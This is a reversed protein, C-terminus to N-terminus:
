RNRFARYARLSADFGAVDEDKWKSKKRVREMLLPKWPPTPNPWRGLETMEDVEDRMVLPDVQRDAYTLLLEFEETSVGLRVAQQIFGNVRILREQHIWIASQDGEALWSAQRALGEAFQLKERLADLGFMRNADRQVAAADRQKLLNYAISLIVGFSFGFATIIPTTGLGWMKSLVIIAVNGAIIKLADFFLTRKTPKM